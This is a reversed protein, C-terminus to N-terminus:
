DEHHTVPIFDNPRTANAAAIRHHGEYVYGEPYDYDGHMIEVPKQVGRAKVDKFLGSKKSERLKRSWTADTAEHEPMDKEARTNEYYHIAHKDIIEGPKMFMSLQEYSIPSTM